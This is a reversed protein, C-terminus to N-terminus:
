SSRVSCGGNSHSEMGSSQASMKLLVGARASATRGSIGAASASTMARQRTFRGSSRVGLTAVRTASSRGNQLLSTAAAASFSARDALGLRLALGSAAARVDRRPRTRSPTVAADTATPIPRM